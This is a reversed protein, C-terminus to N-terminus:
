NIKNDYHSILTKFLELQEQVYQNDPMDPIKKGELMPRYYGDIFEKKMLICGFKIITEFMAWNESKKYLDLLAAEVERIEEKGKERAYDVKCRLDADADQKKPSLYAETATEMTGRAKNMIGKVSIQEINEM